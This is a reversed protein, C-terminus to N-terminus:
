EDNCAIWKALCKDPSKPKSPRLASSPQANFLSGGNTPPSRACTNSARRAASWHSLM